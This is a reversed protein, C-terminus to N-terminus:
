KKSAIKLSIKDCSVKPKIVWTSSISRDIGKSLSETEDFTIEFDVSGEENILNIDLDSFHRVKTSLGILIKDSNM